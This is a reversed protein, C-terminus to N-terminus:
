KCLTCQFLVPVEQNSNVTFWQELILPLTELTEDRFREWKAHVHQGDRCLAKENNNQITLARSPIHVNCVLSREDCDYQKAGYIHNGRKPDM